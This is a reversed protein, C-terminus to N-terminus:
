GRKQTRGKARTGRLQGPVDEEEDKNGGVSRLAPRLTARYAHVLRLEDTSVVPEMPEEGTIIWEPRVGLAAAIWILNAGGIEKTEGTEIDSISSQTIRGQTRRALEHQNWRKAKRALRIRAGPTRPNEM